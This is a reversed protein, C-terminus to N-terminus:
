PEVEDVPRRRKDTRAGDRLRSRLVDHGADRLRKDLEGLQQRAQSQAVQPVRLELNLPALPQAQEVHLQWAPGVAAPLEVQWLRSEPSALPRPEGLQRMAALRETTPTAAVGRVETMEPALDRPARPMPPVIPLVPEPESPDQERLRLYANRWDSEDGAERHADQPPLAQPTAMAPRARLPMAVSPLMIPLLKMDICPGAPM